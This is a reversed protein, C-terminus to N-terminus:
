EEIYQWLEAPTNVIRKAGGGELEERSRYGWAVGITEAGVSAGMQMDANGVYVIKNATYASIRMVDYMIQSNTKQDDLSRHGLVAVFHIAPFFEHVVRRVDDQFKASVVAMEVQEEQLRSLLEKVGRYVKAEYTACIDGSINLLTGDLDFVILRKM